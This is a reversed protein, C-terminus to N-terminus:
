YFGGKGSCSPKNTRFRGENLLDWASRGSRGERNNHLDMWMEDWNFSEGGRWQEYLNELEHGYGAIVATDWGIENVMRENWRAHRWADAPGNHLGPLVPGHVGPPLQSLNRTEILVEGAIRKAGDLDTPQQRALWDGGHTGLKVWTDSM